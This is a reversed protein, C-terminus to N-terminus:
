KKERLKELGSRVGTQLEEREGRGLGAPDFRYRYHLRLLSRLRERLAQVQPENQVRELWDALTESPQRYLGLTVLEQELQYFESDFGPRAAAAAKVAKEERFRQWKKGVFLRVLLLLLVPTMVWLLYKRWNALGWRWRSFEFWARSWGDAFREFWSARGEEAGFWSGPTVDFDRWSGDVWALCWAHAHRERVIFKKGSREHVAYGVAYRSPVGAKRLLLTAATAFYECHGAREVTLFSGLATLNTTRRHASPLWTSYNFNGHFFAAVRRLVENTTQGALNLQTVLNSLVADEKSPVSLDDHATPLADLTSDSAFHADYIVLGPGEDIRVVGLPNTSIVFAALNELRVIGQPVALLGRRADEGRGTLYQAVTVVGRAKKHPAIEWTTLNTEAPIHEFDRARNGSVWDPSTFLRYSAERLLPPVPQNDKPEVRLVIRGSLKLNGIRGLATRSEKPDTGGRVFQLLWATGYANAWSSLGFIVRQGGYGGVLALVLMGAWVAVRFRRSRHFWLAWILLVTFGVFFWPDTGPRLSAALLCIAFYPYATNVGRGPPLRLNGARASRRRALASFVTWPLKELRSYAQGAVMIFFLMPMWRFLVLTTQSTLQIAKNQAAPSNGSFVGAVASPGENAAFLYIAAGVFLVVCFDWMRRFDKEALEWRLGVVRAGEIVVAMFAGALLLGSQWGWFVLAAGLLLPPTRLTTM